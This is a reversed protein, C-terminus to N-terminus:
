GPPPPSGPTGWCKQPGRPVIGRLGPLASVPHHAPEHQHLLLQQPLQDQQQEPRQLVCLGPAPALGAEDGSAAWGGARSRHRYPATDGHPPCLVPDGRVDRGEQPHCPVPVARQPEQGQSSVCAAPVQLHLAAGAGTHVPKWGPIQLSSPLVKPHGLLVRRGGVEAGLGGRAKPQLLVGADGGERCGRPDQSGGPQRPAPVCVCKCVWPGWVPTGPPLEGATHTLCVHAAKVCGGGAHAAALVRLALALSSSTPLPPPHSVSCPHSPTAHMHM